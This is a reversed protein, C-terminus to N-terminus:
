VAVIVKRMLDFIQEAFKMSTGGERLRSPQVGIFRLAYIKLPGRAKFIFILLNIVLKVTSLLM